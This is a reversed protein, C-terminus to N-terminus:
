KKKQIEIILKAAGDLNMDYLDLAHAENISINFADEIDCFPETGEIEDPPDHTSWMCCMQKSDSNEKYKRRHKEYIQHLIKYTNQYTNM